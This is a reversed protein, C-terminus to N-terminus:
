RRDGMLRLLMLFLNIFDLYLNLAGLIAGRRLAARDDMPANEGFQRIRQTDYATLGTFVLVGIVSVAFNLAPSQLFWNVIMALLVGWLGMILFSGMGSLDRKTVTGYISMGAFTGATVVFTSAISVGTYIILVSSLAMGMVASYVLFWMTAAGASLRPLMSTLGFPLAILAILMGIRIVPNGYIFTMAEQSGAVLWAVAATTMLGATMWQYVQAMFASVASARLVQDQRINDM